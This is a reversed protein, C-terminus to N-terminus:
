FTDRSETSLRINACLISLERCYTKSPGNYFRARVADPFSKMEPFSEGDDFVFEYLQDYDIYKNQPALSSGKSSQFMKVYKSYLTVDVNENGVESLDQHSTFPVCGKLVHGPASGAAAAAPYTLEFKFQQTFGM